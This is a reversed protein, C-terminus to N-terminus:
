ETSRPDTNTIGHARAGAAGGSQAAARNGRRAPSPLFDPQPRGGRGQAAREGHEMRRM